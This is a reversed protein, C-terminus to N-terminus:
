RDTSWDIENCTSFEGVVHRLKNSVLCQYWTRWIITSLVVICSTELGWCNSTITPERWFCWTKRKSKESLANCDFTSILKTLTLGRIHELYHWVQVSVDDVVQSDTENTPGAKNSSSRVWCTRRWQCVCTEFSLEKEGRLCMKCVFVEFNLVREVHVRNDKGSRATNSGPARWVKSAPAPLFTALGVAERSAAAFISSTLHEWM